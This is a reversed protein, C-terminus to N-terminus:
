RLSAESGLLAGPVSEECLSGDCASLAPITARRYRRLDDGGGNWAVGRGRLQICEDRPSRTGEGLSSRLGALVRGRGCRDRRGGDGSVAGGSRRRMGSRQPGEGGSRYSGRRNQLSPPLIGGGSAGDSAAWLYPYQHRGHCPCVNGGLLQRRPGGDRDRPFLSGEERPHHGPGELLPFCRRDVAAM